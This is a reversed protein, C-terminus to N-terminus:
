PSTSSRIKEKLDFYNSVIWNRYKVTEAFPPIGNYEKVRGPGSNYSALALSLDYDFTQLQKLFYKMGHYISSDINIREDAGNSILENKYQKILEKHRARLDFSESLLKAALYVSEVDDYNSVSFLAQYAKDRKYNAEKLLEMATKLYPPEYVNKMGLSRATAPIIQTLGVAAASSVAYQHLNSERKILVYFLLPDVGFKLKESAAIIANVIQPEIANSKLWEIHRALEKTNDVKEIEIGNSALYDPYRSVFLNFINNVFPVNETTITEENELGRCKNYFLGLSDRLRNSLSLCESFLRDIVGLLKQESFREDIHQYRKLTEKYATYETKSEYSFRKYEMVNYAIGAILDKNGRGQALKDLQNLAIKRFELAQQRKAKGAAVHEDTYVKLGLRIAEEPVLALPGAQGNVMEKETAELKGYSLIKEKIQAPLQGCLCLSPSLTLFLLVQLLVALPSRRM